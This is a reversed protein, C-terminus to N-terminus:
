CGDRFYWVPIQWFQWNNMKKKREEKKELRAIEVSGDARIPLM